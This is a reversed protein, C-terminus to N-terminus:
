NVVEVMMQKLGARERRDEHEKKQEEECQEVSEAVM